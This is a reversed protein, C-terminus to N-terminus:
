PGTPALSDPLLASASPGTQAEKLFVTQVTVVMPEAQRDLVTRM